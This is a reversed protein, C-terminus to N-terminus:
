PDALLVAGNDSLVCAVAQSDHTVVVGWHLVVCQDHHEVVQALVDLDVVDQCDALASLNEDRSAAVDLTFDSFSVLNTAIEVGEVGKVTGRSEADEERIDTQLAGILDVVEAVFSGSCGFSFTCGKHHAVGATDFGKSPSERLQDVDLM